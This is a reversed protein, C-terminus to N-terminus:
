FLDYIRDFILEKKWTNEALSNNLEKIQNFNKVLPLKAEQKAKNLLKQGKENFGLIKIYQPSVLDEKTIGLYSYLIIRRIRSHAYRKSKINDCLSSFSDSKIAAKKIKNELGESVDPLSAIEDPTMKCLNAIISKEMNLLSHVRANEYLPILADPVFSKLSSNEGILKRIGTASMFSSSIEESNYDSGERKILVPKIPSNLKILAKLYEVALINNSFSIIKENGDFVSSLAMERAKAFPLGESLYSSLATKYNEDEAALIKAIKEMSSLDDNEAGFALYDVVGLADLIAVGSSAFREATSMAMVTPLELVLDAGCKLAADCRTKKDFVAIDGRQVFNGSMLAVVTDAGTIERAKKIHYEHGKHFPNYECIIGLVSM